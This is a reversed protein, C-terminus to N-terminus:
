SKSLLDVILREYYTALSAAREKDRSEAYVRYLPETGSSRALVWAGDDFTLKVGDTEDIRAGNANALIMKKVSPYLEKSCEVKLKTTFYEPLAEIQKRLPGSRAITELMRAIAMGGDRCFQHDPFILGGNEEGGFAAKDEIMRRAVKPAGVATRFVKGGAEKVVDDILSSTAVPTVVEKNQGEPATELINKSLLALTIDGPVFNGKNDVFVCRDADGDHAIGLHAHTDKVLKKLDSLNDETPESPHGPFEGRASANLTIARVGLKKLLLPSTYCAAGNSCDLVAVIDAKRILNVDVKSVISDVYADGAGSINRVTGVDSWSVGPIDEDFRLEVAAEDEPSAETGDGAVVKIGNYQPPNHSATIMVGAVVDANCKVYYQLAPTPVMGLNRVDCGVSTLGSIVAMSIMDSSIRTDNAIAITGPFCSGIAKGMQLALKVDMDKNVVGRVGNTGFMKTM